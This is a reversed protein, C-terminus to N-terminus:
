KWSFRINMGVAWCKSRCFIFVCVCTVICFCVSLCTLCSMMMLRVSLNCYHIHRTVHVICVICESHKMFIFLIFRLHFSLILISCLTFPTPSNLIWHFLFGGQIYNPLMASGSSLARSTRRITLHSLSTM